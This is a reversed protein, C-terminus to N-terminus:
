VVLPAELKLALEKQWEENYITDLYANGKDPFILLATPKELFGRHEKVYKKAAAYVAGSSAGAFIAQENLLQFCGKIIDMHSVHVVDDIIAKELLPSAQSAGIGSIFRKKPPHGFITSGEVDVGIIKVKPLYPKISTSIGTIAGGSSVAVFIYHLQDFSSIIEHGMNFYGQYNNPDQYQDACFSHEYTSCIDQVVQIRTLLYGGTKDLKNVKVVKHALLHLLGEYNPNINPDIVPIFKIQLIKCITAAAIAFNGSSSAVVITEQTIEGRQIGQYLMHYAARDKSSGSFNTYELKAYLHAEEHFLDKLPTNGIFPSLSKLKELM